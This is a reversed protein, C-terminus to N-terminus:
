DDIIEKMYPLERLAEVFERWETLRHGERQRIMSLANEYTMTVTRKQNYSSPLLQIITYWINQKEDVDDTNLYKYRLGNLSGLIHDLLADHYPRMVNEFSFDCYEFEKAMLKHMTSCSNATTGVKYTDYEKWWYLPATIDMSVFIQRMYKRHEPGAKCLKRMLDLDKPGIVYDDGDSAAACIHTYPDYLVCGCCSERNRCYDSDSIHWSNMPNRMGRVAHELGWTEVKEIKIM